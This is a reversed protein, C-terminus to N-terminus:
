RLVADTLTSCTRRAKQAPTLLCAVVTKAPVDLGCCCASVSAM